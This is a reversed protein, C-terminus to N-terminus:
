QWGDPHRLFAAAAAADAVLPHPPPQVGSRQWRAVCREEIARAQM